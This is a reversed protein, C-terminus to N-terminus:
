LLLGKLVRLAVFVVLPSLDLGGVPPLITRIPKLVPETPVGFIQSAPHRWPLKMWSVVAAGLLLLSYLDILTGLLM